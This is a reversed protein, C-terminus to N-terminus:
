LASATVGPRALASQLRAVANQVDKRAVNVGLWALAEDLAEPPFARMFAARDGGLWQFVKFVARHVGSPVVVAVPVHRHGGANLANMLRMRQIASPVSTNKAGTVFVGDHDPQCSQVIWRDWDVDSPPMTHRCQVLLRGVLTYALTDLVVDGRFDSSAM